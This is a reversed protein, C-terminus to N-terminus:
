EDSVGIQRYLRNFFKDCIRLSARALEVERTGATQSLITSLYELMPRTDIHKVYPISNARGRYSCGHGALHLKGEGVIRVGDGPDAGFAHTRQTQGAVLSERLSRINRCNGFRAQGIEVYLTPARQK